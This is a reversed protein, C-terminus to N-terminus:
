FQFPVIFFTGHVSISRLSVELDIKFGQRQEKALEPTEDRVTIRFFNGGFEYRYYWRDLM